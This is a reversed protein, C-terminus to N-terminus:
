RRRKVKIRTSRAAKYRLALKSHKLFDNKFM